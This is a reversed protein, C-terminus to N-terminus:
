PSRASLLARLAGTHSLERQREAISCRVRRQVPLWASFRDAPPPACRANDGARPLRACLRHRISDEGSMREVILALRNQKPQRSAAASGTEGSHFQRRHHRSGVAMPPNAPGAAARSEWPAASQSASPLWCQRQRRDSSGRGPRCARAIARSCAPAPARLNSQAACRARQSGHQRADFSCQLLREASCEPQENGRRPRRGPDNGDVGIRKRPQRVLDGQAHQAPQDARDAVLPRDFQALEFIQVSPNGCRDLCGPDSRRRGGTEASTEGASNDCHSIPLNQYFLGRRPPLRAFAAGIM